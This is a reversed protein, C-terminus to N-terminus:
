SIKITGSMPNGSQRRAPRDLVPTLSTNPKDTLRNHPYSGM